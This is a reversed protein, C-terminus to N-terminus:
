LIIQAPMEQPSPARSPPMPVSDVVRRLEVPRTTQDVTAMVSEDEATLLAPQRANPPAPHVSVSDITRYLWDACVPDSPLESPSTVATTETTAQFYIAM